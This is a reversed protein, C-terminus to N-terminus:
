CVPEPVVGQCLASSTLSQYTIDWGAIQTEEVAALFPFKGQTTLSPIVIEPTRRCAKIAIALTSAIAGKAGAVLLLLPRKEPLGTDTM